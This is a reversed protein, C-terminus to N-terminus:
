RGDARRNLSTSTAAPGAKRDVGASSEQIDIRNETDWMFNPVDNGDADLVDIRYDMSQKERM